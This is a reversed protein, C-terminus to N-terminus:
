STYVPTWWSVSLFRTMWVSLINKLKDQSPELASLGKKKKITGARTQEFSSEKKGKKRERVSIEERERGREEERRKKKGKRVILLFLPQVRHDQGMCWVNDRLFIYVFCFCFFCSLVSCTLNSEYM